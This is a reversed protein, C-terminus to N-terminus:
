NIKIYMIIYMYMIYFDCTRSFSRSKVKQGKSKKETILFIRCFGSKPMKYAFVFHGFFREFVFKRKYIQMAKALCPNSLRRTLNEGM